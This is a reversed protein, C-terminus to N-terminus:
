LIIFLSKADKGMILNYTTKIVMLAAIGVFLYGTVPNVFVYGQAQMLAFKALFLLGLLLMVVNKPDFVRQNEEIIEEVPSQTATAALAAMTALGRKAEPNKVNRIKNEAKKVNIDFENKAKFAKEKLVDKIENFSKTPVKDLLKEVNKPDKSKIAKEMKDKVNDILKRSMGMVEQIYVENVYDGHENLINEM